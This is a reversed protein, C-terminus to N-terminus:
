DKAKGQETNVTIEEITILDRDEHKGLEMQEIFERAKNIDTFIQNDEVIPQNYYDNGNFVIYVKM